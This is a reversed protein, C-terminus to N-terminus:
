PEDHHHFGDGGVQAAHSEREAVRLVQVQVVVVLHRKGQEEAGHKGNRQEGQRKQNDGDEKPPIGPVSRTSFAGGTTISRVLSQTLRTSNARHM